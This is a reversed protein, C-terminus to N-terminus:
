DCQLAFVEIPERRGQVPHRGLPTIPLSARLRGATEASILIGVHKEEGLLERCLVEIREASNVVDGVITYNIRSPAGVNGVLVRGSHIGIRLRLPRRGAMMRKVNERYLAAAITRAARCARDAHDPQSDPAGWFAMVADGIYKDVTGGEAEVCDDVITFHRNLLGAIESAALKEALATFGVIDTFMITVAREESPIPGGGTRQMLREVLRRPVYAEFQRLAEVMANFASNADDLERLPSHRLRPTRDLDLRRICDAAGALKRMPRAVARGLLLALVLSVALVVLGLEAIRGLRQMQPAMRELAFYTGILWPTDGYGDIERFLFVYAGDNQEVVRAHVDNVFQRELHLDRRPSWIERLVPDTFDALAPLPRADTLGPFGRQLKPHALVFERDYLVFANDIDAGVLSALFLSLEYISVGAVLAGLYRDDARLPLFLNLFTRGEREAVFLEGWFAGPSERTKAMANQFGPDDSWDSVAVPTERRTRFARLVRLDPSVYGVAAVQPVAALSAALFAGVQGEDYLDVHGTEFLTALYELQIRVPELHSHVRQDISQILLESKERMLESTNTRAIQYGVASVLVVALLALLSIGAVM